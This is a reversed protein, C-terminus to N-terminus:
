RTTPSSRLTMESHGRSFARRWFDAPPTNNDGRLQDLWRNRPRGPSRRWSRDPHRGLTMDVHCRLAQHTPTDEALRAVHGFISEAYHNHKLFSSILATLFTYVLHFSSSTMVYIVEDAKCTQRRSTRTSKLSTPMLLPSVTTISHMCKCM